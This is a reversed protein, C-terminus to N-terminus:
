MGETTNVLHELLTGDETADRAEGKQSAKAKLADDVMPELYNHIIKMSPGTADGGIERM